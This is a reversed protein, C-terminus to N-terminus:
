GTRILFFLCFNDLALRWPWIYFNVTTIVPDWRGRNNDVLLDAIFCVLARKEESNM